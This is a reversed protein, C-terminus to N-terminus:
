APSRNGRKPLFTLRGSRPSIQFSGTPNNPVQSYGCFRTPNVLTEWYHISQYLAWAPTPGCTCHPTHASLHPWRERRGLGGSLSSGLSHSDSAGGSLAAKAQSDPVVSMHCSM